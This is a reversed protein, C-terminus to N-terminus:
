KVPKKCAKCVWGTRDHNYGIAHDFLWHLNFLCVLNM